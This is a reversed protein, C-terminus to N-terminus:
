RSSASSSARSARVSVSLRSGRATPSWIASLTSASKRTRDDTSRNSCGSPDSTVTALPPRRRLADGSPATSGAPTPADPRAATSPRATVDGSAKLSGDITRLSSSASLIGLAPSPAGRPEEIGVADDVERVPTAPQRRAGPRLAASEPVDRDGEPVAHDPDAGLLAPAEDDVVVRRRVEGHAPPDVHAHAARHRERQ